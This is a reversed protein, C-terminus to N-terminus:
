VAKSWVTFQWPGGRTHAKNHDMGNLISMRDELIESKQVGSIDSCVDENAHVNALEKDLLSEIKTIM